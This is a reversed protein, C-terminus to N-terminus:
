SLGSLSQKISFLNLSIVILNKISNHITEITLLINCKNKCKIIAVIYIMKPLDTQQLMNERAGKQPVHRRINGLILRLNTFCM